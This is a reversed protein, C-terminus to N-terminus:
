KVVFRSFRIEPGFANKKKPHFDCMRPHARAHADRLTKVHSRISQSRGVGSALPGQSFEHNVAAHSAGHSPPLGSLWPADPLCNM